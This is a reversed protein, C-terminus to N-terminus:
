RRVREKWHIKVDEMITWLRMYHNGVCFLIEAYLLEMLSGDRVDTLIDMVM